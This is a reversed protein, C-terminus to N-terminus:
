WELLAFRELRHFDPRAGPVAAHAHYCRADPGGHILYANVRAPPLPLYSMPVRGTGRYRGIPAAGAARSETPSGHEINVDYALRMGERVVKRVGRLELTLYHGHPGFELELYHEGQDAIFVEVVEHEWLRPTSGAASPPAPDGFYPADFTLVLEDTVLSLMVLARDAEPLLLGQWDREIPLLV